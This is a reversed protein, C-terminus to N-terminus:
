WTIRSAPSSKIGQEQMSHHDEKKHLIAQINQEKAKVYQLYFVFNGM